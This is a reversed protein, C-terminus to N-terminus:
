PNSRNALAMQLAQRYANLTAIGSGDTAEAWWQPRESEIWYLVGSVREMERVAALLRANEEQLKDNRSNLLACARGWFGATEGNSELEDTPTGECFSLAAKIRKEDGFDISDRYNEFAAKLDDSENTSCILDMVKQHKQAIELNEM